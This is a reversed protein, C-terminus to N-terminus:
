LVIKKILKIITDINTLALALILWWFAGIRFRQWWSLPKEVLVEKITQESHTEVMVTDRVEVTYPVQIVQPRSELSHHLFGGTVVADSSAYKNELHSATDRTVVKEVEKEIAFTTTDHIIRDRYEVRVSDRYEIVPQKKCVGCSTAPLLLTLVAGFIIAVHLVTARFDIKLEKEM